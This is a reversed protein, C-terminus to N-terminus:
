HKVLGSISSLVMKITETRAAQAQKVLENFSVARPATAGSDPM